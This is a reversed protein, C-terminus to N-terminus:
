LFTIGMPGIVAFHRVFAAVRIPASLLSIPILYKSKAAVIERTNTTAAQLPAAGVTGGVVAGAFGAAVVAGAGGGVATGAAVFGAAAALLGLKGSFPLGIVKMIGQGAPPPVSRVPRSIAAPISFSSPTGTLITLLAPPLECTPMFSTALDLGSPYMTTM